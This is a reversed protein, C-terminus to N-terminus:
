RRGDDEALPEGLATGVAIQAGRLFDAAALRRGGPRQLESVQLLAGDGCVVWLGEADARVVTGPAGSAAHGIAPAATEAPVPEAAWLRLPGDPLAVWACPWPQLARVQRDIELAQQQWDVRGDEKRLMRTVTVEDDAQPQPQLEGAALAELTEVLLEAGHRALRAALDPATDREGVPEQRQMLIPGTDLGPDMLMTTVGSVRDGALIAAPIPAAGRHRPLLSAHVNVCGLPPIALIEAPLILGYAVVVIADPRHDRIRRQTSPERLTSPQLVDLGHQEAWVKVPPASLRRGRGRPRDPRTVVAVVEHEGAVARLSPISLEPTGMFLIRLKM